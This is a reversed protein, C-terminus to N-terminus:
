KKGRGGKGGKGKGSKGKAKNKAVVARQAKTPKANKPLIYEGSHALIPGTRKIAGGHRFPALEGLAGGIVDGQVGKVPFLASGLAGLGTGLIRGFIGM